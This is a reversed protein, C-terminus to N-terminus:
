YKNFGERHTMCWVWWSLMLGQKFRVSKFRRDLINSFLHKPFALKVMKEGPNTYYLMADSSKDMRDAERLHAKASASVEAAFRAATASYDCGAKPKMTYTVLM